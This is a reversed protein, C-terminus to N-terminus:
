DAEKWLNALVLRTKVLDDIPFNEAGGIASWLDFISEPHETSKGGALHHNFESAFFLGAVTHITKASCPPFNVNGACIRGDDYVNPLPPRFLREREGPRQKVAFIRYQSGQGIFIFAPLPLDFERRRDPDLRAILTRRGPPIYVALLEQGDRRAYFLCDRPLLGTSLPVGSFAAAVDDAAVEYCTVPRGDDYRTVVISEQFLDLRLELDQHLRAADGLGALALGVANPQINTQTTM